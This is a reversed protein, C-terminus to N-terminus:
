CLVSLKEEDKRMDVFMVHCVNLFSNFPWISHLFRTMKEIKRRM